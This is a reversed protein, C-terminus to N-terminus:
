MVIHKSYTCPTPHDQPITAFTNSSNHPYQTSISTKDFEKTVMIMAHHHLKEGCVRLCACAYVCVCVCVCLSLSLSHTHTHTHTDCLCMCLCVFVVMRMCYRYRYREVTLVPTKRRGCVRVCLCVCDLRQRKRCVSRTECCGRGLALIFLITVNCAAAEREV